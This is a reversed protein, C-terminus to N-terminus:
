DHADSREAELFRDLLEKEHTGTAPAAQSPESYIELALCKWRAVATEDEVGVMVSPSKQASNGDAKRRGTNVDLSTSMTVDRQEILANLQNDLDAQGFEFGGGGWDSTSGGSAGWDDQHIASWDSASNTEM